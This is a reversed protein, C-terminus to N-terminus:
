FISWIAPPLCLSSSSPPRGDVLDEIQGYGDSLAQRAEAWSAAEIKYEAQLAAERDQAAKLAAKHSEDQDALKKVLRDREQALANCEAEKARLTTQAGALQERLDANAKRSETLDITKQNLERAQSNFTAVRLNNYDRIATRTALFEQTCQKLVTAQFQLRNRVEQKAMNLVATGGGPTRGPSSASATELDQASSSSGAAKQPDPASTAKGARQRSPSRVVLDARAAPEGRAPQVPPASPRSGQDAGTPSPPAAERELVIVDGEEREVVLQDGGAEEPPPVPIEPAVVRLPVVLQPHRNRLAEAAREAAAAEVQAKAAADAQAEASRETTEQAATAAAARLEEAEREEQAERANWEM